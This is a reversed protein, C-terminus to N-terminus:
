CPPLEDRYVKSFDAEHFEDSMITEVHWEPGFNQSYDAAAGFSDFEKADAIDDSFKGDHQGVCSMTAYQGTQENMLVYLGMQRRWRGPENRTHTQTLTPRDPERRGSCETTAMTSKTSPPAARGTAKLAKVQAKAQARLDGAAEDMIDGECVFKKGDRNRYSETQHKFTMQPTGTEIVLVYVCTSIRVLAFICSHM